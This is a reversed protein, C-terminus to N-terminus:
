EASTCGSAVMHYICVMEAWTPCAKGSNAHGLTVSSVPLKVVNLRDHKLKEIGKDKKNYILGLELCRFTQRWMMQLCSVGHFIRKYKRTVVDMVFAYLYPNLEQSKKKPNRERERENKQTAAKLSAKMKKIQNM